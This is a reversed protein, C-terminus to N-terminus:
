QHANTVISRSNCVENGIVLQRRVNSSAGLRQDEGAHFGYGNSGNSLGHGNCASRPATFLQDGEVHAMKRQRGSGDTAARIPTSATPLLKAETGKHLIGNGNHSSQAPRCNEASHHSGNVARQKTGNCDLRWKAAPSNASTSISNDRLSSTDSSSHRSNSSSTHSADCFSSDADSCCSNTFGSSSTNLPTFDPMPNSGRRGLTLKGVATDSSGAKRIPSPLESFSRKHNKTASVNGASAGNAVTVLSHRNKKKKKKSTEMVSTSASKTDSLQM